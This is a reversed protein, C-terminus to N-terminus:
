VAPFAPPGRLKFFIHAPFLDPLSMEEHYSVFNFPLKIEPKAYTATFPSAAVFDDCQCYIGVKSFETKGDALKNYTDTHDAAINHLFRKPTIAFAFVVLMVAAVFPQITFLKQLFYKFSHQLYLDESRGAM